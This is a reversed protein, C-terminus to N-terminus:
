CKVAAANDKSKSLIKGRTGAQMTKLIELIKGRTGGEWGPSSFEIIKSRTVPRKWKAAVGKGVRGASM